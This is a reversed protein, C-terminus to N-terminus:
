TLPFVTSSSFDPTFVVIREMPFHLPTPFQYEPANIMKITVPCLTIFGDNINTVKGVFIPRFTQGLLNLHHADLMLLVEKGVSQKVLDTLKM